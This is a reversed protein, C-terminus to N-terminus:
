VRLKFYIILLVGGLGIFVWAILWLLNNITLSEKLQPEASEKKNTIVKPIIKNKFTLVVTDSHAIVITDSMLSGNEWGDFLFGSDMQISLPLPINQYYTGAFPIKIAYNDNVRVSGNEGELKLYFTGENSLTRTIEDRAISTRKRAFSRFHDVKKLWKGMPIPVNKFHKPLESKSRPLENRYVNEFHNVAAIITDPHLATNMIHAYQNIFDNKFDEHEMLKRFYITSWTNNYWNTKKPSLCKTLYDKNVNGYSLDTDYLIMRFKSDLDTSNWYRINGRSDVNNIFIQFARYNIYM